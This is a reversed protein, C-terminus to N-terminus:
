RVEGPKGNLLLNVAFLAIAAGVVSSAVGVLPEMRSNGWAKAILALM